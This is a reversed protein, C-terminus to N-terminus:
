VFQNLEQFVKTSNYFRYGHTHLSIYKEYSNILRELSDKKIELCELDKIGNDSIQKLNRLSSENLYFENNDYFTEKADILESFDPSLGLIKVLEIQFYLVFYLFNGTANNLASYINILLDFILENSENQITSKNIVEIIKYGSQLRDFDTLINKFSNNYEANSILQLERNQKYYLIVNIYNMTEMTGCLRSKNNRAGKVIASIKGFDKTFLTVIKSTEGYRISKLVFAETKTISM